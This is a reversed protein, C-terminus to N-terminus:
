LEDALEHCKRYLDRHTSWPIATVSLSAVSELYRSRNGAELVRFEGKTIAAVRQDHLVWVPPLKSSEKKERLLIFEDFTTQMKAGWPWYVVIDTLGAKDIIRGFKGVLDEDIRDEQQEMLLVKHGMKSLLRAIEHRHDLPSKRRRGRKGEAWFSPGLLFLVAM